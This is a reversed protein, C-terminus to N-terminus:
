PFTFGQLFKDYLEWDQRRGAHIIVISFLQDGRIFYYEDHAYSQPSGTHVRHIAPLGAIEVVENYTMSWDAFWQIVDAGAPPRYFDLNPHAVTLVPWHEDDVLPGLFEVSKDPEAGMVTCDGPYWLAYGFQENLYPKWGEYGAEPAPAEMAIEVREVQIQAGQVDIAPCTVQGWVRAISGTDRLSALQAALAADASDIGYRPRFKGSSVFYDDFQADGPTSVIVGPWGEVPTPEFFPAGPGDPRLQTVVFQCGGYDPVACDLTGWFHAYTNSDRLSVIESEVAEDAGALGVELRLEEPLLALYDDFPDGEPTSVVRGYWCAVPQRARPLLETVEGSANVEGEWRFTTTHDVIVVRYIVNEPAVVPFSVTATWDGATYEFTSAGILEQSLINEAWTLDPSPANRRYNVLLHALAADRARAPDPAAPTEQTPTEQTPTEQTPTEEPPLAGTCRWNIEATKDTVRVVCAPSCGPKEVDLDIWWTGTGENCFHTEELGGQAVCESNQAIEVAEQYSLKAGTSEDLCYEDETETTPEVPQTAPTATCGSWILAGLILAWGLIFLKSKMMQGREKKSEYHKPPTENENSNKFV